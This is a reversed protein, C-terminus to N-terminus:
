ERSRMEQILAEASITEGRRGQALSELLVAELEADVEFEGDIVTQGDIVKHIQM